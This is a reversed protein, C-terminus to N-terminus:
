VLSVGDSASIGRPLTAQRPLGMAPSYSLLGLLMNGTSPQALVTWPAPWPCFHAGLASTPRAATHLEQRPSLPTSTLMEYGARLSTPARQLTQWNRHYLHEGQGAGWCIVAALMVDSIRVM